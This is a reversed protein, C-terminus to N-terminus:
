KNFHDGTLLMHKSGNCLAPSGGSLLRYPSITLNSNIWCCIDVNLPHTPEETAKNAIALFYKSLMQSVPGAFANM